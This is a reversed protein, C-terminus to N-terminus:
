ILMFNGNNYVVNVIERRLHKYNDYDKAVEFPISITDNIGKIRGDIKREQKNVTIVRFSFTNGNVPTISNKVSLPAPAEIYNVKARKMDVPIPQWARFGSYSFALFFSVEQNNEYKRDNFRYPYDHGEVLGGKIPIFYALFSEGNSQINFEITGNKRESGKDGSFDFDGISKIKGTIEKLKSFEKTFENFKFEGLQKRSVMQEMSTNLDNGLWEYEYTDNKIHHKFKKCEELYFKSKNFFSNDIKEGTNIDHISNLVYLNYALEGILLVDKIDKTSNEKKYVEELFNLCDYLAINHKGSRVANLYRRIDYLTPSFRINLVIKDIIKQIQQKTLQAWAKQPNAFDIKHLTKTIYANRYFIKLTDSNSSKEKEEYYRGERDTLYLSIKEYNRRTGEISFIEETKSRNYIDMLKEVLDLGLHIKDAYWEFNVDELFQKLTVCGSLKRGLDLTYTILYIYSNYGYSSEIDIDICMQFNDAAEDYLDKIEQELEYKEKEDILKNYRNNFYQLKRVIADGKTHYVSSSGSPEKEIAKQAESIALDFYKPEGNRASHLYLRSLHQHFFAHEPFTNTLKQLIERSLEVGEGQTDNIENILKSFKTPESEDTSFEKNIFIAELLEKDQSDKILGDPNIEDFIKILDFLWNKLGTRWTNKYNLNGGCLVQETVEKAILIHRSEWSEEDSSSRRLIKYIAEDEEFKNQFGLINCFFIENIPINSYRGILCIFTIVKKHNDNALKKIIEQVYSELRSFNEEFATLGYIFPTIFEKANQKTYYTKIEKIEKSREPRISCFLDEFDKQEDSDLIANLTRSKSPVDGNSKITRKIYIVVGHKYKSNAQKLLEDLENQSVQSEELIALIPKDGTQKYLLEIGKYTEFRHFKHVIITPFDEIGIQYAIRKAITTGGASPEHHLEFVHFKKAAKLLSRIEKEITESQSREVDIGKGRQWAIGRWTIEDGRYFGKIIQENDTITDEKGINKHIIEIFKTTKFEEYERVSMEIHTDTLEPTYAPLTVTGAQIQKTRKNRTLGNNFENFDMLYYDISAFINTFLNYDNQASDIESQEDSIIAVKIKNCDSGYARSIIDFVSDVFENENSLCVVILNSHNSKSRSVQLISELKKGSLRNWQKINKESTLDQALYWFILNNLPSSLFDIKSNETDKSYIRLNEIGLEENFMRCLGSSQTNSDFDIILHWDIDANAFERLQPVSCKHIFNSSTILVYQTNKARFNDYQSAFSFWDKYDPLDENKVIDNDIACQINIPIGVQLYNKFFWKIIEKLLIKCDAYTNYDPNENEDSSTHSGGNGGFRLKTFEGRKILNNSQKTALDVHNDFYENDYVYKIKEWLQKKIKQEPNAVNDLLIINIIGEICYRVDSLANQIKALTLDSDREKRLLNSTNICMLFHGKVQKLYNTKNPISM